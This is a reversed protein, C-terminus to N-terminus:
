DSSAIATAGIFGSHTAVPWAPSWNWRIVPPGPVVRCLSEALPECHLGPAGVAGRAALKGQLARAFGPVRADLVPGLPHTRTSSRPRTPALDLTAPRLRLVTRAGGPPDRPVPSAPPDPVWARRRRCAIRQGCMSNTGAPPPVEFASIPTALEDPRLRGRTARWDIGASTGARESCARLPTATSWAGRLWRWASYTPAARNAATPALRAIAPCPRDCARPSGCASRSRSRSM